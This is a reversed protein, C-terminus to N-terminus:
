EVLRFLRVSLSGGYRHHPSSIHRDSALKDRGIIETGSLLYNSCTATVNVALAVSPKETEQVRTLPSGAAKLDTGRGPSKTSWSGERIAGLSHRQLNIRM